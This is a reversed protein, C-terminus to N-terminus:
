KAERMHRDVAHDLDEGNLVINDPTMGAFVGGETITELDRDRLFRYRAADNELARQKREASSVRSEYQENLWM